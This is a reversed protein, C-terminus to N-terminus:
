APTLMARVIQELEDTMSPDDQRRYWIGVGLFASAYAGLISHAATRAPLRRLEGVEMGRTLMEEFALMLSAGSLEPNESTIISSSFAARLLTRNQRLYVAYTRLASIVREIHSTDESITDLYGAIAVRSHDLLVAQLIEAKSDFYGYVTGVGTDALEAIAAISADDYGREAFLQEAAALIAARTRAKRRELRSAPQAQLTTM